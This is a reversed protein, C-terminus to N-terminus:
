RATAFWGVILGLPLLVYWAPLPEVVTAMDAVWQYEITFVPAFLKFAGVVAAGVGVLQFVTAVLYRLRIVALSRDVEKEKKSRM